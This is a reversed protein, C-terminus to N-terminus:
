PASCQILGMDQATISGTSTPIPGAPHSAPFRALLTQMSPANQMSCPTIAHMHSKAHNVNRHACLYGPARVRVTHQLLVRQHLEPPVGHM